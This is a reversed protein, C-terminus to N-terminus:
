PCIFKIRFNRIEPIYCRVNRYTPVHIESSVAAELEPYNYNYNPWTFYVPCSEDNNNEQFNNDQQGYTIPLCKTTQATPIHLM